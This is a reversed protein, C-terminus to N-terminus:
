PCSPPLGRIWAEVAAVGMDDVIGTAGLYAIRITNSATDTEDSIRTAPWVPSLGIFFALGKDFRIHHGQSTTICAGPRGDVMCNSNLRWFDRSIYLHQNAATGDVPYFVRTSGDPAEYTPFVAGGCRNREIIPTPERLRGMHMTWGLGLTQRPPDIDALLLQRGTPGAADIRQWVKSSYSRVIALDLGSRGPLDLDVHTLTLTGTFLDIKEGAASTEGVQTRPDPMKYFQDFVETQASSVTPWALAMALTAIGFIHKM